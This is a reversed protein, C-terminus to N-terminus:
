KDEEISYFFGYGEECMPVMGGTMSTYGLLSTSLVFSGNGGSATYAPNNYLEVLLPDM